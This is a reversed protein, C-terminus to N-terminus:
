RWSAAQALSATLHSYCDGFGRAPSLSTGGHLFGQGWACGLFGPVPLSCSPALYSLPHSIPDWQKLFHASFYSNSIRLVTRCSTLSLYQETAFIQKCHNLVPGLLSFLQLAPITWVGVERQLNLGAKDSQLGM